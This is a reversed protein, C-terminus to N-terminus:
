PSKAWASTAPQPSPTSTATASAADNSSGSRPTSAKSAPTRSASSSPPSSPMPTNRSAASSTPLAPIRSRKAATCWRKLHTRADAPDTTHYLYFDRLQEKLERTRWLRYRHPRLLALIQGHHDDLNERGAGVAFRARRWNRRDPMGPGAPMTAAEARYVSEVVENTWKIV